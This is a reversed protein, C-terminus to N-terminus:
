LFEQYLNVLKEGLINIDYKQALSSNILVYEPESDLTKEIKIILKVM